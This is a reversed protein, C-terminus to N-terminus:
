IRGDVFRPTSVSLTEDTVDTTDFAAHRASCSGFKGAPCNLPEGGTSLELRYASTQVVVRGDDEVRPQNM